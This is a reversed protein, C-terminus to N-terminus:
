TIPTTGSCLPQELMDPISLWGIIDRNQRQLKKIAPLVTMSPNNPWSSIMPTAMPVTKDQEAEARPFTVEFQRLVPGNPIMAWHEAQLTEESHYIEQFTQKIQASRYAGIAYRILGCVCFLLVCISGALIWVQRTKKRRRRRASVYFRIRVEEDGKRGRFFAAQKKLTPVAALSATRNKWASKNGSWKRTIWQILVM